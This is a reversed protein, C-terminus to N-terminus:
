IIYERNWITCVNKNCFFILVYFSINPIAKTKNENQQQWVDQMAKLHDMRCDWDARNHNM